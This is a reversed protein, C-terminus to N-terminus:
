VQARAEQLKAEAMSKQKPTLLTPDRLVEAYLDVAEAFERRKFHMNAASLAYSIQRPKLERARLFLKLAVAVDNSANAELGRKNCEIAAEEDTRGLLEKLSPDM